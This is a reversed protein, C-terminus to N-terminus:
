KVTVKCTVTKTAAKYTGNGSATVKIKITYTGKKTGKKVTVKGTKKNVAFADKGSVKAYTVKGQNKSVTLPRAVTVAKKKLSKYLVERKTATSKLPNTAKNIKFKVTKTGTYTGKGSITITATGVKVNNKYALTYDTNLKLSTSGIKVTPKPKLAKGTYTKAKISSTTASAISKRVQFSLALEKSFEMGDQYAVARIKTDKTLKIPSQYTKRTAASTPDSGDATYYLTAEAGTSTLSLKTGKDILYSAKPTTALDVTTSGFTAAPRTIRNAELTAVLNVTRTLSTGAVAFTLKSTGPLLAQICATTIGAANTKKSAGSVTALKDNSSTTVVSTGELGKGSADLVQITVNRTTGVVHTM